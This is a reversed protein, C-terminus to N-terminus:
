IFNLKSFPELLVPHMSLQGDLRLVGLSRWGLPSVVLVKLLNSTQKLLFIFFYGSFIELAQLPRNRKYLLKNEELIKMHEKYCLKCFSHTSPDLMQLRYCDDAGVFPPNVSYDQVYFHDEHQFWAELNSIASPHQVYCKGTIYEASITETKL